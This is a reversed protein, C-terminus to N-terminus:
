TGLEKEEEASIVKKQFHKRSCEKRRRGTSQMWAPNPAEETSGSGKSKGRDCFKGSWIIKSNVHINEGVFDKTAPFTYSENQKRLKQGM